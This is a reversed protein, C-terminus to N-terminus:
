SFKRQLKENVENIDLLTLFDICRFDRDIAPEGCIKSGAKMYFKLLPPLIKDINQEIGNEPENFIYKELYRNFDPIKHTKKPKVIDPLMKYGKKHFYKYLIAAELPDTTKISSCGFLWRTQTALMYRFVGKFLMSITIANRFDPHVCARGIELKVEELQEINKLHFETSSYYKDNFLSSNLRYTGSIQGSKKDIVALHDCRFDFKDVDINLFHEKKLLERYYIEHRLRLVDRLERGNSVTKLIYRNNEFFIEYFPRYSQIKKEIIKKKIKQVVSSRQEPFSSAPEYNKSIEFM